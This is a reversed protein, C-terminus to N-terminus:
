CITNGHPVHRRPDIAFAWQDLDESWSSLLVGARDRISLPLRDWGCTTLQNHWGNHPRIRHSALGFVSGGAMGHDSLRLALSVLNDSVFLGDRSAPPM